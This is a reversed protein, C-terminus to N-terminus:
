ARKSIELGKPLAGVKQKIAARAESKTNAQVTMGYRRCDWWPQNKAKSCPTRKIRPQVDFISNLYGIGLGMRMRRAAPGAIPALWHYNSMGTSHRTRTECGAQRTAEDM